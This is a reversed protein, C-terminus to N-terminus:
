TITSLSFILITRWVSTGQKMGIGKITMITNRLWLYFTAHYLILLNLQNSHDIQFSKELISVMYCSDGYREWGEACKRPAGLSRECVYPYADTCTKGALAGWHQM